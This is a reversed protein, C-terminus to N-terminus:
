PALHVCFSPVLSLLPHPHSPLENSPLKCVLCTPLFPLGISPLSASYVVFGILQLSCLEQALPLTPILFYISISNLLVTPFYLQVVTPFYSPCSPQPQIHITYTPQSTAGWFILRYILGWFRHIHGTQSFFFFFIKAFTILNLVKFYPSWGPYDPYAKYGIVLTKILTLCLSIQCLPVAESFLLLSTSVPIECGCSILFHWWGGSAPLSM